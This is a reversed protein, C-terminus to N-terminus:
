QIWRVNVMFASAIMMLEVRFQGRAPLQDDSFPRKLAGITAQAAARL